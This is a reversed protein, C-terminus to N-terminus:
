PQYTEAGTLGGGVVLITGDALPELV